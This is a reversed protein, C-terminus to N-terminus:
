RKTSKKKNADYLVGAMIGILIFMPNELLLASFFGVVVGIETGKGRLNKM